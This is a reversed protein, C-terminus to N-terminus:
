GKFYKEIDRSRSLVILQYGPKLEDDGSPPKFSEGDFVLIIRIDEPLNLSNIKAGTALDTEALSVLYLYYNNNGINFSALEMSSTTAAMYNKITSAIITPQSIPIGLGLERILEAIRRDTVRALRHPVNYIKSIALVLLNVEDNSTLALVMDIQDMKIDSAYLSVDTADKGIVLVDFKSMLEQRREPNKEVLYVQHKRLDIFNLLEEAVKGGGVILIKM